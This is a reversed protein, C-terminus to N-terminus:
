AAEKQGLLAIFDEVLRRNRDEVRIWGYDANLHQAFAEAITIGEHGNHESKYTNLVGALFFSDGPDATALFEEFADTTRRKINATVLEKVSTAKPSEPCPRQEPWSRALELYRGETWQHAFEKQSKAREAYDPPYDPVMQAFKHMLAGRIITEVHYRDGGNAIMDAVLGALEAQTTSLNGIINAVDTQHNPNAQPEAAPATSETTNKKM